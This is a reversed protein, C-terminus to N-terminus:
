PNNYNLVEESMQGKLPILVVGQDKVKLEFYQSVLGQTKELALSKHSQINSNPSIKKSKEELQDFRQRLKDTSLVNAFEFNDQNVWLMVNRIQEETRQDI